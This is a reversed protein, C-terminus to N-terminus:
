TCQEFIYSNRKWSCELVNSEIWSCELPVQIFYEFELVNPPIRAFGPQQMKTSPTPNAPQSQTANTARRFTSVQSPWMEMARRVVPVNKLWRHKCYKLLFMESSTIATFDKRQAPTDTFFIWYLSSLIDEIGRESANAGAKFANHVTPLGYLGASLMAPAGETESCLEEDMLAHLKLNVNPGDM